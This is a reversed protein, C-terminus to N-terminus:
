RKNSNNEYNGEKKYFELLMIVYFINFNLFILM